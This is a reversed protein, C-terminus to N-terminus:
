LGSVRSSFLEQQPQQKATTLYHRILVIIDLDKIIQNAVQWIGLDDTAELVTALADPHAV